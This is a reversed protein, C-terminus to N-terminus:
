YYATFLFMSVPHIHPPGVSDFHCSQSGWRVSTRKNISRTLTQSWPTRRSTHATLLRYQQSDLKGRGRQEARGYRAKKHRRAHKSKKAPAPAQSPSRARKKSPEPVHTKQISLAAYCSGRIPHSSAHPVNFSLSPSGERSECHDSPLEDDTERGTHQRLRPHHCPAAAAGNGSRRRLVRVKCMPVRVAVLVGLGIKDAESANITDQVRTRSM